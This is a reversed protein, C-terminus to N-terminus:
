LRAELTSSRPTRAQRPYAHRSTSTETDESAEPELNSYSGAVEAIARMAAESIPARGINTHIIVGSANVVRRLSPLLRKELRRHLIQPLYQLEKELHEESWKKQQTATRLEELLNQIEEVLLQRPYEELLIRVPERLLVQNVSPIRRLTQSVSAM